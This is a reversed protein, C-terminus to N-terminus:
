IAPYPKEKMGDRTQVYIKIIEVEKGLLKKKVDDENEIGLKKFWDRIISKNLFCAKIEEKFDILARVKNGYKTKVVRLEVIVGKRGVDNIDILPHGESSVWEIIEKYQDTQTKDESM